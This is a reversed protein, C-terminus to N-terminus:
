MLFMCEHMSPFAADFPDSFLLSEAVVSIRQSVSFVVCQEIYAESALKRILCQICFQSNDDIFTVDIFTVDGSFHFDNLSKISRNIFIVDENLSSCTRKVLHVILSSIIGEIVEQEKGRNISEEIICTCNRGQSHSYCSVLIFDVAQHSWNAFNGEKAQLVGDNLPIEQEEVGKKDSFDGVLFTTSGVILPMEM